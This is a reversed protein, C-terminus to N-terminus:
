IYSSKQAIIVYKGSYEQLFSTWSYLIGVGSWSCAQCVRGSLLYYHHRFYIQMMKAKTLTPCPRVGKERNVINKRLKESPSSCINAVIVINILVLQKQQLHVRQPLADPESTVCSCTFLEEFLLFLFLFLFLFMLLFLFLFLFLFLHFPPLYTRRIFLFVELM